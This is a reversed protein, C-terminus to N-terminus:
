TFPTILGFGSEALFAPFCIMPSPNYVYDALAQIVLPSCCVNVIFEKACCFIMLGYDSAYRLRFSDHLRQFPQCPDYRCASM